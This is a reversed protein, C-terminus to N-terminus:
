DPFCMPPHSSFCERGTRVIFPSGWILSSSQRRDRAGVQRSSIFSWGGGYDGTELVPPTSPATVVSPQLALSGTYLRFSWAVRAWNCSWLHVLHCLGIWRFSLYYCQQDSSSQTAPPPLVMPTLAAPPPTSGPRPTGSGQLSARAIQLANPARRPPTTWYREDAGRPVISRRRFYVEGASDFVWYIFSVVLGSLSGTYLRFSLAM